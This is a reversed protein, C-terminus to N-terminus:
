CAVQEKLELDAVMMISTPLGEEWFKLQSRIDQLSSKQKLLNVPVLSFISSGARDDESFRTHTQEKLHDLFPNM